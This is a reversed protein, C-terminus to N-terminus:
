EDHMKMEDVIEIVIELYRIVRRAAEDQENKPLHGVLSQLRKAPSPSSYALTPKEM